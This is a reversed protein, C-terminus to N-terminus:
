LNLAQLRALTEAMVNRLGRGQTELSAIIQSASSDPSLTTMFSHLSVSLQSVLQRFAFARDAPTIPVPQQSAQEGSTNPAGAQAPLSYLASLRRADSNNLAQGNAQLRALSKTGAGSASLLEHRRLANM